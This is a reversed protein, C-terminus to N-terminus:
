DGVTIPIDQELRDAGHVAMLKLSWEGSMEVKSIGEYVGHGKETFEFDTSGHDMAKMSLVGAIKAGAVPGGEPDLLQVRVTFSKDMRPEVPATTVSIRLAHEVSKTNGPNESPTSKCAATILVFLFLFPLLRM